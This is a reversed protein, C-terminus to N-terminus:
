CSGQTCNMMHSHRLLFTVHDDWLHNFFFFSFLNLLLEETKNCILHEIFHAACARGQCISPVHRMGFGHRGWPSVGPTGALLHGVGAHSSELISSSRNVRAPVLLLGSHLFQFPLKFTM